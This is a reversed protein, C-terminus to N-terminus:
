QNEIYNISDVIDSLAQIAQWKGVVIQTECIGNDNVFKVNNDITRISINHDTSFRVSVQENKSIRDLLDAWSRTVNSSEPLNKLRKWYGSVDYILTMFVGQGIEQYKFKVKDVRRKGDIDTRTSIFGRLTHIFNSTKLHSIWTCKNQNEITQRALEAFRAIESESIQNSQSTILNSQNWPEKVTSVPLSMDIDTHESTM